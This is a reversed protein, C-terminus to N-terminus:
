ESPPQPGDLLTSIEPPEHYVIEGKNLKDKWRFIHPKRPKEAYHPMYLSPKGTIAKLNEHAVVRFDSSPHDLYSILKQAGGDQLQEADFGWLLRFLDIGEAGHKNELTRRLGKAAEQDLVMARKMAEYEETWYSKLRNDNLAVLLPDFEGLFALSCVALSRVELRQTEAQEKLSLSVPRDLAIRQLLVSAAEPDRPRADSGDIWGPFTEVSTLQPELDDVLTLRQGAAITIPEQGDMEWDVSGSTTYIHLVVHAQGNEVDVGPIFQRSVEVAFTSNMDALRAVAERNPWAIGITSGTQAFTEVTARGFDLEITPSGDQSLSQQQMRAPGVLTLQMGTSLMLQPRFVPFALLQDEARISDRAEVRDWLETLPNFRVLLQDSSLFKGVETPQPDVDVVDADNSPEQPPISVAVDDNTPTLNIIDIDQPEPPVGLDATVVDTEEPTTPPQDPFQIDEAIEDVRDSQDDFPAVLPLDDVPLADNVDATAEVTGEDVSPTDDIMPELTDNNEATDDIALDDNTDSPLSPIEEVVESAQDDVLTGDDPIVVEPIEPSELQDAASAEDSSPDAVDTDSLFLSAIPHSRDLPGMGFLGAFALCFVILAAIGVPKWISRRPRKLYDPASTWHEDSDYAPKAAQDVLSSPTPAEVEDGQPEDIRADLAAAIPPQVTSASDKLQYIRKKLDTTTAAPEGLIITLIQHCAAVEGLHVDSDLCLREFEPVDDVPLTNDLYEAVTNADSGLGDAELSPADLRTQGVIQRIRHVLKTAMESEDIKKELERADSEDLIDDLYALLTRLTLRM